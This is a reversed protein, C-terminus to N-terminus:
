KPVRLKIWLARVSEDEEQLQENWGMERAVMMLTWLQALKEDPTQRRLEEIEHQNVLKWRNRWAQVTERNDSM